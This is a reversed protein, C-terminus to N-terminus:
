TALVKHVTELLNQNTFPKPLFGDTTVTKRLDEMEKESGSAVIIKVDPRIKRLAQIATRGDMFPMALDTIIVHVADSNRNFKGVAELGSAATLVEYGYNELTSRMIALIAEEDDVVLVCEGNGPPLSIKEPLAETSTEAAAPLYCKFKTGRGMESHVM